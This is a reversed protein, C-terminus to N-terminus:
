HDRSLFLPLDSDIDVITIASLEKCVASLKIAKYMNFVEVKDDIKM